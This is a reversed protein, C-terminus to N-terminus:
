NDSFYASSVLLLHMTSVFVYIVIMNTKKIYKCHLLKCM